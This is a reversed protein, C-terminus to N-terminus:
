WCTLVTVMISHYFNAWLIVTDGLHLRVTSRAHSCVRVSLHYYNILIVEPVYFLCYAFVFLVCTCVLFLFGYFCWATHFSVYHTWYPSLIMQIFCTLLKIQLNCLHQVLEYLTKRILADFTDIGSTVSMGRVSGIELLHTGPWMM